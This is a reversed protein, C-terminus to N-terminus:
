QDDRCVVPLEDPLLSPEKIALNLISAQKEPHLMLVWEPPQRKFKTVYIARTLTSGYGAMWTCRYEHVEGTSAVRKVPISGGSDPQRMVEIIRQTFATM